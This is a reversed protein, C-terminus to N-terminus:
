TSPPSLAVASYAVATSRGANRYSHPQDGRFVVVDGPALLWREGSAVLEIQGQECALYERTGPTHPQGRMAAGPPLEMRELSLGAVPDPLLHRMVVAGRRRQPLEDPRYHRVDARPKAILEEVTVGLAGAVKLLVALTPNAGGSELHTWTPRPVGSLSALAQQSLGRAERLQRVNRALNASIEDM